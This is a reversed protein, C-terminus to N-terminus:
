ITKAPPPISMSLAAPKMPTQCGASPGSARSTGFSAGPMSRVRAPRISMCWRGNQSLSFPGHTTEVESVLVGKDLDWLQLRMRDGALRLMTVVHRGDKAARSGGYDTAAIPQNKKWDWVLGSWTKIEGGRATQGHFLATDGLNTEAMKEGANKWSKLLRNGRLDFLSMETDRADDRVLEFTVIAAVPERPAFVLHHKRPAPAEFDLKRSSKDALKIIHFETAVGERREVAVLHSDPDGPLWGHSIIAFADEFFTKLVAGNESDRIQLPGACADYVGDVRLKAVLFTKGDEGFGLPVIPQELSWVPQNPLAFEIGAGIGALVAIALLWRTNSRCREVFRVHRM